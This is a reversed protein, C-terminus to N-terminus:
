GRCSRSTTASGSREDAVRPLRRQGSLGRAPDPVDAPESLRRVRRRALARRAAVPAYVDLHAGDRLLPTFFPLGQIHDWHLHTLLCTGRFPENSQYTM